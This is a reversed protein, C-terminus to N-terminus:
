IHVYYMTNNRVKKTKQFEPKEYKELEPREYDEIELMDAAKLGTIKAHKAEKPELTKM